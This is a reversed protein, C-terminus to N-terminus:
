INSGINRCSLMFLFELVKVGFSKLQRCSSIYWNWNKAVHIRRGWENRKEVMEVLLNLDKVDKNVGVRSTM